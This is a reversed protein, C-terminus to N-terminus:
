AAIRGNELTLRRPFYAALRDDHTAVLLSAGAERALEDLLRAVVKANAHDLASTPEDAILLKPRVVLARAIAARQAEGQSLEFPRADARAGLGLRELLATVAGADSAGTQLRQALALNGRVSLASVLRLGQFIIAIHARRLADGQPAGGPAALVKDGLRVEGADPRTLACIINLLTSKGSGSPGLLLLRDGADLAFSVDDLVPRGAYAKGLRSVELRM